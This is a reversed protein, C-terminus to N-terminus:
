EFYVTSEEYVRFPRKTLREELKANLEKLALKQRFFTIPIKINLCRRKIIHRTIGPPFVGKKRVVDVIQHRTFTPFIVMTNTDTHAKYIDKIDGEDPDVPLVDRIIKDKYFDVVKNLVKIKEYLNGSTVVLYVKVDKTVITCLRGLGEEKIYRHGINEDLGDKVELGNEQLYALFDDLRSQFLHVWSSLEVSEQDNYDIIQALIYPIGLIKFVQLRNMGDLQLYKHDDLRAVVIPNTLFKEHEIKEILPAARRQDYEEHTIIDETPIVQLQFVHTKM